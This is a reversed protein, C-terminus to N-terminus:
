HHFIAPISTYVILLRVKSNRGPGGQKTEKNGRTWESKSGSFHLLKQMECRHGCYNRFSQKLTHTQSTFLAQKTHKQSSVDRPAM